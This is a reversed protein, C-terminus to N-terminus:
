RYNIQYKEIINKRMRKIKTSKLYYKETKKSYIKVDNM